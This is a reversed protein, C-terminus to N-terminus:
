IKKFLIGTDKCKYFKKIGIKCNKIKIDFELSESIKKSAQPIIPFFLITIIRVAELLFYLYENLKEKNDIKWLENEQIYKNCFDLLEIIKKIGLNFNYDEFHKKIEEINEEFFKKLKKNIRVKKIEGDLKKSLGFIRSVLNGYKDALENNAEKIENEEFDFDEGYSASKILYYRLSDAGYNNVLFFPDIRTGTSKSLKEGKINIFGHVFITKPLEIENALLLAPWIVSHFWNIDKGIIHVDAPWYNKFLRGNPWNLASIYNLLADIWVYITQSKDFPVKIGWMLKKRTVSLDKLEEEELRKLIEKEYKEPKILGDKIAKLIKEKFESLKFFYNEEEIEELPKKHIPCLNDITDKESYFNECAICYLGKYKSKYIFGKEWLLNFFKKVCKKHKKETTRIFYNYDINLIKCLEKFKEANKDVFEKIQKKNKAGQQIAAKAVKIANEDTGTLFFVKYGNIRKWRAIVDAIIKEYAHGLHPEANVYDIATTIYFKKNRM